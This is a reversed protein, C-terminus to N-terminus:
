ATKEKLDPKAIIESDDILYIATEGHETVYKLEDHSYRRFLVTDGAKLGFVEPGVEVITGRVRAGAVNSSNEIMLGSASVSSAEYPKIVCMSKRPNIATFENM